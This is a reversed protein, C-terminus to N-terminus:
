NLHEVYNKTTKQLRCVLIQSINKHIKVALKPYRSDVRELTASDIKLVEADEEVRISATRPVNALLAMEGVIHGPLVKAIDKDKGDEGAVSITAKGKLLLMMSNDTSGQLTLLEHQKITEISGMLAFTKIQKPKLGKFLPNTEMIEKSISLRMLDWYTILPITLLLAPTIILDSVLALLITIASLLGFEAISGFEAFTLVIFGLILALSTGLVPKLEHKITKEIVVKNDTSKKVEQSFRVMFHLTDDVAVGLAIIVVPFTATSLPIDLLSMAGLAGIIPLSNPAMALLGAKLSVFLSSIVLFIVLLMILLNTLLERSIRDSAQAVLISAGTIDIDIKNPFQHEIFENLEALDENLQESGILNSRVVICAKEFDYDVFRELTDPEMLLTYQSILDNNEPVMFHKISGGSMEQHTKRIFRDYSIVTEYKSSLYDTLSSIM